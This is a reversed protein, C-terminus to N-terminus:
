VNYMMNGYISGARESFVFVRGLDGTGHHGKGLQLAQDTAVGRHRAAVHGPGLQPTGWYSTPKSWPFHWDLVWLIWTHYISALMVPTYQHDIAFWIYGYIAYM